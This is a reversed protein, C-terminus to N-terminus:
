IKVFLCQKRLKSHIFSIEGSKFEETFNTNGGISFDVISWGQIFDKQCGHTCTTKDVQGDAESLPLV